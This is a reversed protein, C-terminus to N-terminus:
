PVKRLLYSFLYLCGKAQTCGGEETNLISFNMAYKTNTVLARSRNDSTKHGLYYQDNVMKLYYTDHSNEVDTTKADILEWIADDNLGLSYGWIQDHDLALNRDGKPWGKLYKGLQGTTSAAEIIVKQGAKVQDATIRQGIVWRASSTTWAMAGIIFAIAFLTKKM